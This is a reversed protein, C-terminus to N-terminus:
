NTISGCAQNNCSDQVFVYTLGWVAAIAVTTGLLLWLIEHDSDAEANLRSPETNRVDIGAFKVIAQRDLTVGLEVAPSVAVRRPAWPSSGEDRWAPGATLAFTPQPRARTDGGLPARFRLM